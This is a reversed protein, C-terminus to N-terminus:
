GRYVFFLSLSSDLNNSIQEDSKRAIFVIKHTHRHKNALRNITRMLLGIYQYTSILRSLIGVM